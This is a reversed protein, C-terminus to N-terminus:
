VEGSLVTDTVIDIMIPDVGVDILYKRDSNMNKEFKEIDSMRYCEIADSYRAMAMKLHGYNLRDTASPKREMIKRYFQESREFDRKLFSCWAIPRLSKGASPDLFDVKYYCKLASDLDGAEAYCHGMSLAVSADDPRINAVKEYYSLAKHPYGTLKYCQAIHRLTWESDPRLLESKLYLELAGSYDGLRQKCLGSKQYVQADAGIRALVIAFLDSAEAYYKYKFYFEAAVRVSEVDHLTDGIMRISPLNIPASFPNKFEGKRRYLKFFRYMDQVYRGAIESRSIATPNLYTSRLESIQDMQTKFQEFMMRRGAPPMQEMSMLISYKDSDCMMGTASIMEGLDAAINGLVGSVSSYEPYFPLFWNAVEHFFPFSKLNSFTGMMVDGGSSQLDNLEKLKDGLGSKDFLELWEPNEDPLALEEPNESESIIKKINPRLKIIEPIIEENMTRSIRETDRTRVFEMFVMKFDAEWEKRDVIAAFVDRFKHGSLNERNVWMALLLACLARVEFRGNGNLYYKGLLTMRREDYYEMAGLMVASLVSEKFYLPLSEDDAMDMLATDDDASLPATTWVVDFIRRALGELKEIDAREPNRGGLRCMSQRSYESKYRAVLGSISSDPQMSEYRIKSFYQLPSEAIQSHRMIASVVSKIESRIKDLQEGRTPDDVGNIAYRRLYGFSERITSIQQNISWPAREAAAMSELESLAGYIRNFSLLEDIRNGILQLQSLTMSNSIINCFYVLKEVFVM